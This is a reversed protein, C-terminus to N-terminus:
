DSNRKEKLKELLEKSNNRSKEVRERSEVDLNSSKLLKDSNKINTHAMQEAATPLVEAVAFKGVNFIGKGFLKLGAVAKDKAGFSMTLDDLADSMKFYGSKNDDSM